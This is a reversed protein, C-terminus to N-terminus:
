DAFGADRLTRYRELELEFTPALDNAVLLETDGDLRLWFTIRNSLPKALRKWSDDERLKDKRLVFQREPDRRVKDTPIGRFIADAFRAERIDLAWVVDIYFESAYKRLSPMFLELSVHWRGVDGKMVVEDFFCNELRMPTETVCGDVVVKSLALNQVLSRAVRTNTLTVNSVKRIDDPMPGGRLSANQFKVDSLELNSFAKKGEVFPAVIEKGSVQKRRKTAM